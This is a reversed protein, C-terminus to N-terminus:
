CNIRYDYNNDIIKYGIKKYMKNSIPNYKDVFLSCFDNNNALSLQSLYYVVATGYQHGRFKNDTYVLNISCGKTLKRTISATAVPQGSESDFIYTLGASINSKIKELALDINVTENLVELCFKVFWKALLDADALSAKRFIGKPLSINSLQRLEMIDMALHERLTINTIAKYQKIFINCVAKNSNIGNIPINNSGIYNALEKVASIDITDEPSFINLNFPIANVFILSTENNRKTVKGMIFGDNLTSTDKNLVNILLLQSLSENNLLLNLNEKLFDDKCKYTIVSM